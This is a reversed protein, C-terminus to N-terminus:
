GPNRASWLWASAPFDVVFGAGAGTGYVDDTAEAQVACAARLADRARQRDRGAMTALLSAAPGIRSLFSLADEIAEDRTAGAGARWGYAIRRAAGGAWGADELLAAVEEVVAFAFPGPGDAIAGPPGPPAGMALVPDVAWRNATREAFCTFLLRGDARTRGRLRALASPPDAFFMLGHRSMMADFGADEVPMAADGVEFATGGGGRGVAAAAMAAARERAVAILAPSLDIGVIDLDPRAAAVAMATAGAGCGIDLVRGRQPAANAMAEVLATGLMGFSRDTRRWEAAWTDGVRASWDAAGTM